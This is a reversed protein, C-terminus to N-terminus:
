NIKAGSSSQTFIKKRLISQKVVEKSSGESTYESLNETNLRYNNKEM